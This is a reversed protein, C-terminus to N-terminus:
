AAVVHGGGEDAHNPFGPTAAPSGDESVEKALRELLEAYRLRTEPRPERAGSEWRTVATRGCGLARAVEAQSLGNAERLYRRVAPPPLARRRRANVLLEDIVAM